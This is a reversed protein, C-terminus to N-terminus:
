KTSFASALEPNRLLHEGFAEVVIKDMREELAQIGQSSVTARQSTRLINRVDEKRNYGGNNYLDYYANLARRFRELKPLNTDCEGYMPVENTLINTLTQFKGSNNWYTNQM